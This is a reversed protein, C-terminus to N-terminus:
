PASTKLQKVAKTDRPKGDFRMFGVFATEDSDFAFHESKKMPVNGVQRLLYGAKHDGFSVVVANGDATLSGMDTNTIIPYGLITAPNAKAMDGMSWIPQGTSDKVLRIGKEFDDSMVFAGRRRYAKDVSQVLNVLENYTIATDAVLDTQTFGNALKALGTAQGAAGTGITGYFNLARGFREICMQMIYAEIDIISDTILESSVTFIGTSYKDAGWAKTGFVLNSVGAVAREAIPTAKNATDDNTPFNITNGNSTTLVDVAEILGGYEKLGKILKSSFTEFTLYGGEASVDTGQSRELAKEKAIRLVATEDASLKMTDFNMGRVFAVFLKKEIAEVDMKAGKNRLIEENERAIQVRDAELTISREEAEILRKFSKIGKDHKDLQAEQDATLPTVAPDLSRAFAQEDAYGKELARKLEVLRNSM